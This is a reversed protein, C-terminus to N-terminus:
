YHTDKTCAKVDASMKFVEDEFESGLLFANCLTSKGTGTKGIMVLTVLKDNKNEDYNNQISKKPLISCQANSDQKFLEVQNTHM